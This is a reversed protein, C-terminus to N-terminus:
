RQYANLDVIPSIFYEKQISYKDGKKVTVKFDFQMGEKIQFNEVDKQKAYFEKTCLRFVEGGLVKVGSLTRWYTMDGQMFNIRDDNLCEAKFQYSDDFDEINKIVIKFYVGGWDVNLYEIGVDAEIFENANVKAKAEAEEILEKEKAEALKKAKYAKTKADETCLFDPESLDEDVTGSIYYEKYYDEFTPKYYSETIPKGKKTKIITIKFDFKSGAEILLDRGNNRDKLTGTHASQLRFLMGKNYAISSYASWCRGDVVPHGPMQAFNIRNDNLCEVKFMYHYDYNEYNVLVIDLWKHDWMDKTNKIVLEPEIFENAKAEALKKAKYAKPDEKYEMMRAIIAAAEARTTLGSPMFYNANGQPIGNILYEEHLKTICGCDVDPFPSPNQSYELKLAKLMMMGMDFRKIPVDPWFKDGELEHDIVGKKVATEIYKKAWHRDYGVDTFSNGDTIDYDMAEVLMKTFEAKTVLGKPDFIVTGDKQPKGNIIGLKYLVSVDNTFWDSEKMDKFLKSTDAYVSAPFFSFVLATIIILSIIRKNRM